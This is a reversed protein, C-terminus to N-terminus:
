NTPQMKAQDAANNISQIASVQDVAWKYRAMVDAYTLKDDHALTAIRGSYASMDYGRADGEVMFKILIDRKVIYSNWSDIEQSTAVRLAANNGSSSALEAINNKQIVVKLLADCDDILQGISDSKDQPLPLLTPPTTYGNVHRKTVSAGFTFGGVDAGASKLVKQNGYQPNEGRIYTQTFQDKGTKNEGPQANVQGWLNQNDFDTAKTAWLNNSVADAMAEKPLMLSSASAAILGCLALKARHTMVPSISSMSLLVQNRVKLLNTM